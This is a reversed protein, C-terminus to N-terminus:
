RIGPPPRQVPPDEQYLGGGSLAGGLLAGRSLFVGAGPPVHSWLCLGGLLFMPGSLWVPRSMM